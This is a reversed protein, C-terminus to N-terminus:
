NDMAMKIASVVEDVQIPKTLYRLFGAEIGKEIDKNTAAASLALVPTDHTEPMSNIQKLADFGDMGPLNIDLVIIDPKHTRALEIGLEANHASIMSLGEVREIILEMLKLNAPNDEVYLMKGLVPSLTDKKTLSDERQKIDECDPSALPLDFWFTSGKGPTSEFGIHGNMLEILQKCVILGIGSGEIDTSEAGLRSFPQFLEKQRGMAIGNGTDTVSTRLYGDEFEHFQITIEGNDRNYKIANSVLNIMVQRYRTFDAQVMPLAVDGGPSSITIGREDAMTQLLSLSDVCIDMPPINELSLDVKGAEIKALDLIENILELLHQGGKMIQAVCDKQSPSLPEKPNFDLMQGFGLIANMPTRLEHSMSSLFESKAKNANDAAEKARRTADEAQKRDTIDQVVGLMNLPQGDGDRIVDGSEQLWRLTGDPWVVRHEVDFEQHEDVCKHIAENVEDRDDPHIAAMFNEYTIEISGTEYGLLPAIIDSWYLEGTQVDWDWNGIKAFAQSKQLRTESQKLQDEMEKRMSIDHLIGVYKREGAAKMPTVNLELPFLTGDKHLGWLERATNIIRAAHITSNKTIKEHEAREEPAMLMSVNKGTVEDAGYGFMKEAAPNYTEIVGTDDITVIGEGTNNIVAELYEATKQNKEESLRKNINKLRTQNLSDIVSPLLKLYAAEGDKIIYNLIGLEIAKAAVEENGSGTVFTIPLSPNDALMQRAVDLGMLDPLAYDIAIIDFPNARHLDLGGQGTQVTEVTYDEGEMVTAFLDCLLPDDEIYLIRVPDSNNM